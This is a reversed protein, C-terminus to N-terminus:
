CHTRPFQLLSPLTHCGLYAYTHRHRDTDTDRDTDTHRDRDTDTDRDTNTDTHRDTHTDTDTVRTSRRTVDEDAAHRGVAQQEEQQLDFVSVVAVDHQVALSVENVNTLVCLCM